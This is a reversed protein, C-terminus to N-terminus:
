FQGKNKQFFQAVTVLLWNTPKSFAWDYWNKPLQKYFM